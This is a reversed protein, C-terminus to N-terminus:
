QLLSLITLFPWRVQVLEPSSLMVIPRTCLWVRYM